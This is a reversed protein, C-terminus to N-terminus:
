FQQVHNGVLKLRPDFSESAESLSEIWHKYSWAPFCAGSFPELATHCLVDKVAPSLKFGSGNTESQGRSM